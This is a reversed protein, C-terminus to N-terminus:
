LMGNFFATTLARINKKLNDQAKEESIWPTHGPIVIHTCPEIECVIDIWGSDRTVQVGERASQIWQDLQTSTEADIVPSHAARLMTEDFVRIEGYQRNPLGTPGVMYVARYMEEGEYDTFKEADVMAVGGGQMQVWLRKSPDYTKLERWRPDSKKTTWSHMAEKTKFSLKKPPRRTNKARGM